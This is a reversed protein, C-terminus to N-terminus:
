VSLEKFDQYMDKLRPYLKKYIKYRKNMIEKWEGKSSIRNKIKCWDNQVEKIEKYWGVGKAAIIAAGLASTETEEMIEVEVGFMEAKLKNLYFFDAAGGSVIIKKIKPKKLNEYIDYLSFVVGELISHYLFQDGERDIGFLCGRADTDFIPAREGKLYPLFIPAQHPYYNEIKGSEKKLREAMRISEGSSSTVGYYLYNELYPSTILESKGIVEKRLCGLHESTGTIDFLTEDDQMGMGVLSAFFDNLGTYVPIGAPVKNNKLIIEKTYGAIEDYNKVTPLLKEEIGIEKLFFTSYQKKEKHVLGRWSYPDTIKRGTLRECIEEKPQQIKNIFSFKEKCYLLRPIPYSNLKPHPMGIEALFIERGYKDLIMDLQNKGEPQDWGIIHEENILYTGVQSSLGIGEVNDFNIEDFISLIAEWWGKRNKEKYERRYKKVTKDQYKQLIKVSSTGLDIGLVSKNM